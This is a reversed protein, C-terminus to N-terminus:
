FLAANEVAGSSMPLPGRGLILKVPLDGHDLVSTFFSGLDDNSSMKRAKALKRRKTAEARFGLVVKKKYEPNLLTTNPNM